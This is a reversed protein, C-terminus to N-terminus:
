ALPKLLPVLKYKRAHRALVDEIYSQWEAARGAALSAARAKALWRAADDYHGAKGEDMIPDAQARCARIVWDPHSHITANVVTEVLERDYRTADAVAIADDILGESLFIDARARADLATGRRLHALLDDRLAPWRDGALARAAQYDELSPRERVAVTAAQLALDGQGAAAAVDRLWRALDHKRGIAAAHDLPSGRWDMYMTRLDPDSLGLGHGGIRLADETAGRTHLEQALALAEGPTRLRRMGERVAQEVHGTRALMVLYAGIRGTASALNLYEPTRGQRELITLRIPTLDARYSRGTSPEEGDEEDDLDDEDEDEEDWEDLDERHLVRFRPGGPAGDHAGEGRLLRVVRPDDWGETAATEAQIFAEDPGYDAIDSAWAALREAWARREDPTLDATLLAEAWLPDIEYFLGSADGDSDDLETFSDLYEEAVAELITLASRGDGADLFPRVRNAIQFIESTVGSVAWYAESSRMRGISRLAARVEGRFPAPDLPTRRPPPAPADGAVSVATPPQLGPVRSEVLDALDPWHDALDLLLAELQERDLDALLAALPPRQEVDHPAHLAALLVAIIHKCAGGWEYPCTCTAEGVGGATLTVRVQYPAYGSGEVAAELRDGRRALRVVAGREFYERGRKFSEASALGRIATESITTSSSM